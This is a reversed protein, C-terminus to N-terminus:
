AADSRFFRRIRQLLQGHIGVDGTASAAVKRSVLELGRRVSKELAAAVEANTELLGAIAERRLQYVVCHTRARATAAHPSGTLLGIEGIYEGAGVQGLTLSTTTGTARTMELVGSAVVYLTADAVGEAFLIEGPELLRRTLRGALDELQMPELHEFLVLDGLAERPALITPRSRASPQVLGGPDRELLGAYHLQKRAHRLLLSKTGGMLSTEAVSFTITYHHWSRGLRTLAVTSAPTELIAPCLLTAEDLVQIVREPDVTAPCRVEASVTRRRSPVSRNVIELKAMVSNPIIAIDEGDTQVRISRWNTEIVRGEINAGLSIRDGLQFPAEIGVAIGSFVDALTSQLALGIVIAVVGSTAFLGAVPLALVSKLVIVVTGVYIAAAILDVVLKAPRHRRDHLLAFHLAGVVVRASVLWWAVILVRLWLTATDPTAASFALFPTAGRQHLVASLAILCVVDLAMRIRASLTRLALLGAAAAVLIAVSWIAPTM